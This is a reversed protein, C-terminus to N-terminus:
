IDCNENSRFNVSLKSDFRLIDENDNTNIFIHLM